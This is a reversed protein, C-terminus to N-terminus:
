PATYPIQQLLIPLLSYFSCLQSSFFHLVTQFSSNGGLLALGYWVSWLCPVLLFSLSHFSARLKCLSWFHTFYCLQAIHFRKSSMKILDSKISDRLARNPYIYSLNGRKKAAFQERRPCWQYLKGCCLKKGHWTLDFKMWVTDTWLTYLLDIYVRLLCKAVTTIFCKAVTALSISAIDM